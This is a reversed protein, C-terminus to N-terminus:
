EPDQEPERFEAKGDAFANVATKIPKESLLIKNTTAKEAISRAEKAVAIVLSYRCKGEGKILESVAPYLM